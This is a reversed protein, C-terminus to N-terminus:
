WERCFNQAAYVSGDEAIYVGVGARDWAPTEGEELIAQRHETSNMWQNVLGTALAEGTRYRVPDGGGGPREVPRDVWTMAINEGYAHCYDDVGQFRDYPGEGDPNRHAFYDRQAMDHSHARAVSAVTGDWGIPDLGRETRRENVEAHVFDEVTPSRVVEVDTEYSSNGPDDPDTTAPDREGAPPPDSSPTPADDVGVGALLQPAFLATGLALSCVLAVAVLFNVLGRVLARDRSEDTGTSVRVTAPRRRDM